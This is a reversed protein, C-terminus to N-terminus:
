NFYAKNSEYFVRLLQICQAGSTRQKGLDAGEGAVTPSPQPPTAQAKACRRIIGPHMDQPSTMETVKASPDKLRWIDVRTMGAFAPIWDLIVHAACSM